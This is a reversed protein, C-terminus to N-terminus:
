ESTRFFVAFSFGDDSRRITRVRASLVSLAVEPRCTGPTSAAEALLAGFRPADGEQLAQLVEMFRLQAVHFRISDEPLGTLLPARSSDPPPLDKRGQAGGPTCLGVLLIAALWM